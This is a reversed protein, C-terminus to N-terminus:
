DTKLRFLGPPPPPPEILRCTGLYDDDPPPPLGVDPLIRYNEGQLEQAAAVVADRSGGYISITTPGTVIRLTQEDEYLTAPVGRVAIIGNPPDSIDAPTYLCSPASRVELPPACSGYTPACEGYVFSVFNPRILTDPSVLTVKHRHIAVLRYQRFDTGVSYVPFDRFAKVQGISFNSNPAQLPAPPPSPPYQDGAAEAGGSDLVMSVAAVGSALAAAIVLPIVISRMM